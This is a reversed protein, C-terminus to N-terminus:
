QISVCLFHRSVEAKVKGSKIFQEMCQIANKEWMYGGSMNMQFPQVEALCCQYCKPKATSQEAACKFKYLHKNSMKEFKGTDIFRVTCLFGNQILHWDMLRARSLKGDAPDTAAIIIFKNFHEFEKNAFQELLTDKNANLEERFKAVTAAEIDPQLWFKSCTEVHTIVGTIEETVLDPINYLQTVDNFADKPVFMRGDMRGLGHTEALEEEMNPPLMAIQMPIRTQRMKISKYVAPSIRGPITANMSEWHNRADTLCKESDFTVFVKESDDDFSVKINDMEERSTALDQFLSKIRKVYLPRINDKPFGSFFVTKLPDRGNLAHHVRHEATPDNCTDTTFINPYFAGSIVMKLVIVKQTDNWQIQNPGSLNRIGMKFLRSKLEQVLLHCEQLARSNLHHKHCFERERQRQEDTPGFERQHHKLAWIQYANLMSILDCGSGNSWELRRCYAKIDRGFSM